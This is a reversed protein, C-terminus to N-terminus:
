VEFLFLFFSFVLDMVSIQEIDLVEDGQIVSEQLM